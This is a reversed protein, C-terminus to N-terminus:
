RVISDVSLISTLITACCIRLFCSSRCRWSFHDTWYPGGLVPKKTLAKTCFQPIKICVNKSSESASQENKQEMASSTRKSAWNAWEHEIDTMVLLFTQFWLHGYDIQCMNFMSARKLRKGYWHYLCERIYTYLTHTSLHRTSHIILHQTCFHYFSAILLAFCANNFVHHHAYVNYAVSGSLLSHGLQDISSTSLSSIVYLSGAASQILSSHVVM